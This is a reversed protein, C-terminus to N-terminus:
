VADFDASADSQYTPDVLGLAGNQVALGYPHKHVADFLVPTPRSRIRLSGRALSRTLAEFDRKSRKAGLTAVLDGRVAYVENIGLRKGIFGFVREQGTINEVVTYLEDHQSSDAM